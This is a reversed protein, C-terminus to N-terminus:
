RCNVRLHTGANAGFFALMAFVALFPLGMLAFRYTAMVVPSWLICLGFFAGIGIAKHRRPQVFYGQCVGIALASLVIAVLRVTGSFNELGTYNALAVILSIVASFVGVLGTTIKSM